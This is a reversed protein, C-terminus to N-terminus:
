RLQITQSNSVGQQNTATVRVSQLTDILTGTSIKGQILIPITASFLGGFQQSASNQFWLSFIQEVNLSIDASSMSVGTVPTFHFDIQRLNRGTALGTLELTLGDVSRSNVQATLLRPASAPITLKMVAPASSLLNVGSDTSFSPAITITGAV